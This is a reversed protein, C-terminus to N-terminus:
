PLQTTKNRNNWCISRDAADCVGNMDVDAGLYGSQNRFNWANSRDAADITGNSNTDATWLLQVGGEVDAADTGYLPITTYDITTATASLSLTNLTMIGLHNRHRVSVYYNGPPRTFGIPSTGDVDTVNGDQDVLAAKTELITASNAGDRLEVLVWDVIDNATLVAMTVQEAGSHWGIATYPENLPLFGGTNLDIDMVGANYPGQLMLIPSVTIEGGQVMIELNATVCVPAEIALPPDLPDPASVAMTNDDGKTAPITTGNDCVTYVITSLGSFGAAPTFDICGTGANVTATGESAPPPTSITLSAPDLGEADTDNMLVCTSVLTAGPTTNTDDLATPPTNGCWNCQEYSGYSGEAAIFLSNNITEGVFTPPFDQPAKTHWTFKLCKSLDVIDFAIRGVKVYDTSNIPYGDGGTLTINYSVVTDSSGTLTHLDYFSLSAPSTTQVMGSITLEQDITPNAVARGFSFRFNMDSLNFETAADEARLEVDLYVKSSSCDVDSINFRVDYQANQATVDFCAFFIFLIPLFSLYIKSKM